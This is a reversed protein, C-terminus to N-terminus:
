FLFTFHVLQNKTIDSVAELGFSDQIYYCNEVMIVFHTSDIVFCYSIVVFAGLGVVFDKCPIIHHVELTQSVALYAM